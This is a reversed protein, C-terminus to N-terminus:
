GVPMTNDTALGCDIEELKPVKTKISNVIQELRNESLTTLASQTSQGQSKDGSTTDSDSQKFDKDRDNNCDPGASCLM